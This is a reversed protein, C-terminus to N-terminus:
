QSLISPFDFKELTAFAGSEILQSVASIEPDFSRDTTFRPAVQRIRDLSQAIISSPKLPARFDIGEAAALLEIAVIFQLNDLMKLLRYAGHTAMSVHDEQNASTPISDVSAPHALMKNESVLAASTVHAIMFGCNLGGHETLFAPLNSFNSDNLLAIRREAMSGIEAIAVALADSAFAVPEAHFNGGSLVEGQAHFVLPNDTVANAEVFLTKAAYRIQDLCAGMVQPQCRLSYPDQVRTCDRHSERIESGALLRRYIRACEIQGEHRRVQHIKDDFPVDSGLAADVSMAGSIMTAQFIRNLRLLAYTAIAASIQTGNILAIGEKSKLTMPEMNAQKLITAASDTQGNHRLKGHGIIPASMHALPALDGSAGVSGQSPVLPIMNKNLLQLCFQPLERRVGSYGQALSNVKLILALRVISDDLAPGVGASHSLILNQQLREMDDHSIRQQALRGFGTNVGYITKGQQILREVYNRSIDIANLADEGLHCACQTEVLKELDALSLQGPKIEFSDMLTFLIRAPQIFIFRLRSRHRLRRDAEPSFRNAIRVSLM